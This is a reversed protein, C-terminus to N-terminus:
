QECLREREPSEHGACRSAHGAIFIESLSLFVRNISRTASRSSQQRGYENKLVTKELSYRPKNILGHIERIINTIVM